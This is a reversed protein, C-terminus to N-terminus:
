GEHSESPFIFIVSFTSSSLKQWQTSSACFSCCSHPFLPFCVYYCFVDLSHRYALLATVFLASFSTGGATPKLKNIDAIFSRDPLARSRPRPSHCGKRPSEFPSFLM